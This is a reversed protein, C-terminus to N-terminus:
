REENFRDRLDAIRPDQELPTFGQLNLTKKAVGKETKGIQQHAIKQMQKDTAQKRPNQQAIKPNARAGELKQLTAQAQSPSVATGEETFSTSCLEQIGGMKDMLNKPMADALSTQGGSGGIPTFEPLPQGGGLPGVGSM